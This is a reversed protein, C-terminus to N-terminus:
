PQALFVITVNATVSVDSAQIATPARMLAGAAYADGAMMPQFLRTGGSDITEIGTIHLGAARAADEARARAAAVALTIAESRAKSSDDVGFTVSEVNTVGAGVIADIVNGVHATEHVKVDFARTVTFGYNGPPIAEGRPVDPRRNYNVYYSAYTVDSRAVGAGAVASTMKAYIANNQSTADEAREALTVISARVTAMDPTVAVTGDGSASIRTVTAAPAAAVTAALLLALLGFTRKM